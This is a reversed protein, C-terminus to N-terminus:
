PLPIWQTVLSAQGSDPVDNWLAAIGTDNFALQALFYSFHDTPDSPVIPAAALQLPPTRDLPFLALVDVFDVGSTSAYPGRDGGGVLTGEIPITAEPAGDSTYFAAVDDESAWVGDGGFYGFGHTGLSQWTTDGPHFRYVPQQSGFDYYFIAANTSALFGGRFPMAIADTTAKGTQPDARTLRAGNGESDVATTDVYWISDGAGAFTPAYVGCSADVTVKPALTAPDLKVISCGTAGGFGAKGDFGAVWVADGAYALQGTGQADVSRLVNGSAPDIAQVQSQGGSLSVSVYLTGDAALAQSALRTVGEIQGITATPVPGSPTPGPRGEAPHNTAEGEAATDGFDWQGTLGIDIICQQVYEETIAGADGCIQRLLELDPM